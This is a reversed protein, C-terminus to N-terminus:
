NKYYLITIATSIFIAIINGGIENESGYSLSFYLYMLGHDLNLFVVEDFLSSTLSFSTFACLLGAIVDLSSDFSKDFNSIMEM